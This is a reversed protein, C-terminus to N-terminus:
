GRPRGACARDQHGHPRPRRHRRHRGEQRPRRGTGCRRPPSGPACCHRWRPSSRNQIASTCSSASTSWSASRTAASRTGRRTRPRGTTTGVFGNTCYQELGEDCSACHRCSDVLCGVGVLDGPKFGTVEAGVAGVRGVIEHGPVCPYLTGPWESRVTHLDSHCVGCYAIEIQVDRPGPDRRAIDMAVVPQDAAHAGYAKVTMPRDESHAAASYARRANGASDPLASAANWRVRRVRPSCATSCRSSRWRRPPKVLLPLGAEQAAVRVAGTQDASLILCPAADGRAALRAHMGRWRRWPRPPLRLDVARLRQPCCRKPPLAMPWRPRHLGLRAARRGACLAEPENDVVLAHLGELGQSAPLPLASARARPVEVSFRSGAGPTSRLAVQSGLLRAIRDAIALGLGRGPADEGRRFEEFIRERQDAEIGPGTDHVEIRLGEGVRRVGLLVSGRETYRLANALFNQLM